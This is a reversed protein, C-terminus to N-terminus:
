VNVGCPEYTAAISILEVEPVAQQAVTVQVIPAHSFGTYGISVWVPTACPRRRRRRSTGSRYARDRRPRRTRAPAADPPTRDGVPGSGLRRAARSRAGGVAAAPHRHRLRHDGVAAAPVARRRAGLVVGAGAAVGHRRSRRSCRGAASWPRPTPCATTTAPATPRCSRATRPASSCTAACAASACRTGAPLGRGPAPRSTSWARLVSQRANGGPWTSSCAAM